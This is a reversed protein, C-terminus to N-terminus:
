QEDKGLIRVLKNTEINLIKLGLMCGFVVYEGSESFQVNPLAEPTVLESDWVDELQKEVVLKKELSEKTLYVMSDTPQSTYGQYVALTEDFIKMLKGTYVNFLRLKRDRGYIALKAGDRSFEMSLAWTEKEVLEFLDTETITEFGLSEPMSFDDPDWVEIV